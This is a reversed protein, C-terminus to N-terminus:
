CIRCCYRVKCITAILDVKQGITELHTASACLCILSIRVNKHGECFEGEAAIADQDEEAAPSTM